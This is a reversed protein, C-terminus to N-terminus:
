IMEINNKFRRQFGNLDYSVFYLNGNFKEFVNGNESQFYETRNPNTTNRAILKM